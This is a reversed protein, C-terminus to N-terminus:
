VQPTKIVKSGRIEVSYLRINNPSHLTLVRFASDDKAFGGKRVFDMDRVNLMTSATLSAGHVPAMNM